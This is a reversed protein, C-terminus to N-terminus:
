NIVLESTKPEVQIAQNQEQSVPIDFNSRGERKVRRRSQWLSWPGALNATFELLILSIPYDSWGRLRYYIRQLHYLPLFVFLNSLARFDGDELLTTLLYSVIGKNYGYLQRRLAKMDSRHKHWVQAEPEYVITYGAKLVKYFAYIDEGVGSPMGPGLAEDMLGIEPHRFISTRFAANATGGFKWTPVAIFQSQTFWDNNAERRKFGRGLGGDGYNEFLCQSRTRLEIPLVNGTVIMVDNRAFPAVIKELWDQPVTVDDDITIVIDGTCAIFGANRAYAAGKRKENVLIVSPFEAVVAPTLRSAPNNDIVIIEVPRRTKQALLYNLCNRLDDPRDFTAVTISVPINTPLQTSQAIPKLRKTLAAVAQNCNEEIEILKDGLHKVIEEILRSASISQQHNSIDCKGIPLNKWTVFVRVRSYDTIDTLPQIPQSLEVTNIAFPKQYHFVKKLSVKKFDRKLKAFPFEGYKQIINAVNNCAKQYVTLGKLDGWLEALILDRPFLSPYIFSILLRRINWYYMWWIGLRVFSLIQKPYSLAGCVFYTYLSGNNAIQKRLKEYSLRHRHRIIASPEYVLTYRENVVRFFMELDGAGNTITGVDLAPNFYGIEDFVRRRYAM